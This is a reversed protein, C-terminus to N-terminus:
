RRSGLFPWSTFLEDIRRILVPDDDDKAISRPRYVSSRAVGFLQCHRRVSPEGRQSRRARPSGPREDRGSRKALFDREIIM